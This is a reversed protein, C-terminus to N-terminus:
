SMLSTGSESISSTTTDHPARDGASFNEDLSSSPANLASLIEQIELKHGEIKGKDYEVRPM